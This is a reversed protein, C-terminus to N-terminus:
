SVVWNTFAEWAASFGIMLRLPQSAIFFLGGWLTAPHIRGRTSFDYVVLAVVFLDTLGFFLPPGAAAIGPLRAVAAIVLELTALLVLRKHYDMRQRLLLASGFLIPFVVITSLAIAYLVGVPIGPPAIMLGARLRSTAVYAGLVMMCLGLVGGAIGLRRHLDFRGASILTSQVVLLVMWTTFAAGHLQLAPTLIFPSGSVAHFYYTPSFGAVVTVFMAITMGGFFLHERRAASSQPRGISNPVTAM